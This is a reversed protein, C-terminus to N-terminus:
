DIFCYDGSAIIEQWEAAGRGCPRCQDARFDNIYEYDAPWALDSDDAPGTAIHPGEAAGDWDYDHPPDVVWETWPFKYGGSIATYTVGSTTVMNLGENGWASKRKRVRVHLDFPFTGFDEREQEFTAAPSTCFQDFFHPNSCAEAFRSGRTVAGRECVLDCPEGGGLGRPVIEPDYSVTGLAVNARIAGPFWNIDYPNLLGHGADYGYPVNARPEGRAAQITFTFQKKITRGPPKGLRVEILIDVPGPINDPCYANCNPGYFSVNILYDGGLVKGPLKWKVKEGVPGAPITEVVTKYAFTSAWEKEKDEPDLVVVQEWLKPNQETSTPDWAWPGGLCYLNNDTFSVRHDPLYQYLPNSDADYEYHFTGIAMFNPQQLPYKAASVSDGAYYGRNSAVTNKIPDGDGLPEWVNLNLKPNFTDGKGNILLINYAYGGGGDLALCFMGGSLEDICAFDEFWGDGGSVARVGVWLYPFYLEPERIVVDRADIRVEDQGHVSIASLLVKGTVQPEEIPIVAHREGQQLSNYAMDEKLQGLLLRAPGIFRSAIAPDGSIRKRIEYTYRGGGLLKALHKEDGRFHEDTAYLNDLHKAFGRFFKDEARQEKAFFKDPDDLLRDLPKQERRFLEFPANLLKGLHDRVNSWHKDTPSPVAALGWDAERKAKSRASGVETRWKEDKGDGWAM